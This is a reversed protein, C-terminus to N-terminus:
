IIVMSSAGAFATTVGADFGDADFGGRAAESSCRNSEAQVQPDRWPSFLSAKAL